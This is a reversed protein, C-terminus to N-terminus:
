SRDGRRRPKVPTGALMRNPGWGCSQITGRQPQPGFRLTERCRSTLAQAERPGAPHPRDPHRRLRVGRPPPARHLARLRRRAQRLHLPRVDAARHLAPHRVHDEAAQRQAGPPPARRGTPRPVLQARRDLRPDGLGRDGQRAGVVLRDVHWGTRATINIRPAWQVQVLEREMERELYHRREEDVLDWKNFAIVLARGADRVTQLIRVDQESIWQDADLVLVAVEARDIATSTRLSAYFEHGSAEKVRKRIGATDIFRWERGGLKVLEDVPDVTTGAVSDVVVRESGALRNLLSSKGVNPKGVIAVRRPGVEQRSPSRPRSPCCPSSRTSCTARAAATCPRSRTPSASGSTGCATPRPRPASTTSRTRPWSSRSRRAGAARPRGGRRRRHHRRDRRGRVAGRRGADVAVEAQARIREALGRADPDWGGTDVVTFARGAWNADYSVRDRTVGPIDEVVAERRGLIRNVLTSKGVNPRGVVALVPVPGTVTETTLDSMLDGRRVRGPDARAHDARDVGPRGGARGADARAPGGLHRGRTDQDAALAAQGRPVARRVGPRHRRRPRPLADKGGGAPRTGYMMLPVVPAGTVLALYAAGNRFRTLDGAGRNGEPFIGVAGGHELVHLCTRIAGRDTTVRDLAIQGSARLFPGLRGDFMEEKTLAHVPRPGFIALLPGDIVGTHNAAVIVPGQPPVHGTGHERVDYRRRILWRSTPRGGHLLWTPPHPAPATRSATITVRPGRGPAVILDVVEELTYPTTDVHVAGEAMTLPSATRTSDIRDRALLSSETASVDSGGEEAARRAARAAADATLYVKVDADPAVVSGIDRGEVM